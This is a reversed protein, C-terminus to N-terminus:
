ESARQGHEGAPYGHAAHGDEAQRAQEAETRGRQWGQQLSALLAGSEVPSREAPSREALADPPPQGAQPAVSNKLEPHLSAERVRQPLEPYESLADDGPEASPMWTLMGAPLPGLDGSVTAGSVTAGSVIAGATVPLAVPAPMLAPEPEVSAGAARQLTIAHPLLVIATVGGYPSSRLTVKIQHRAALRVVVFFGLKDSNALDFEPPKALRKNVAEIEDDSMGLGRDEIEIVIGHAVREARVTVETRSPSNTAANEILEALLHIVDAVAAGAVLDDHRAEVSIRTYDEIEAIAGRLVNVLPVPERWGRGPAAGSLIILSEAHRRMRTTLHDLRFLEELAEPETSKREMTDLLALQRHLLSQNRWALNRFVQSVGRRLRAQGAAAEEATRRVSSFAEAVRVIETIRGAPPADPEAPAEIDDGHSLREVVLPLRETALELAAHQLDTLERSIQRGFRAMLYSLLSVAVLGIAGVLLVELLLHDGVSAGASALEIWDQTEAKAFGSLLSFSTMAWEAQTVPIPADTGISAIIGNQLLTFKRYAPSAEIGRYGAGLAPNLTALADSMLLRQQSVIQAFLIREGRSMQGGALAGNVLTVERDALEIAEAAELSAAGQRYLSVDSVVILQGYFEFQADIIANYEGFAALPSIRRADIAVRIAALGHLASLFNALAPRASPTVIGPNANVGSIFAAVAKDTLKRQIMLPGASTRGGTSLWVFSASRELALDTGLTQAQRGYLQDQSTFNHEHVANSATVSAAFGWLALMAALPVVFLVALLARISRTGAPRLRIRMVRRGEDATTTAPAAAMPNAGM